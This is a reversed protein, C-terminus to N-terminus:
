GSIDFRVTTLLWGVLRRITKAVLWGVILIILAGLLVPLYAMMQTLMAHIPDTVLANWDIKALM